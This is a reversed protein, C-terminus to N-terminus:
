RDLLEVLSALPRGVWDPRNALEYRTEYLAKQVLYLSLLLEADAPDAPVLDAAAIETLYAAQLADHMRTTWAARRDHHTAIDAEPVLGREIATDLASRGAYDLSRLLGALDTLPSRKITLEGM